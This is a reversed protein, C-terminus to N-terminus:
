PCPAGGQIVAPLGAVADFVRPRAVAVVAYTSRTPPIPTVRDSGRRTHKGMTAHM